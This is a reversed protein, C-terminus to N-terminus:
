GETRSEAIKLASRLAEDTEGYPSIKPVFSAVDLKIAQDIPKEQLFVAAL